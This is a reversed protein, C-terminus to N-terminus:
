ADRRTTGGLWLVTGVCAAALAIALGAVIRGWGSSSDVPVQACVLVAAMAAAAGLLRGGGRLQRVGVPGSGTLDLLALYTLLLLCDVACLWLPPDGLAAVAAVAVVFLTNRHRFALAPIQHSTTVPRADPPAAAWLTAVILVVIRSVLPLPEATWHAPDSAALALAGGLLRYVATQRGAATGRANM